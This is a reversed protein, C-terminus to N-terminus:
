IIREILLRGLPSAAPAGLEARLEDLKRRLSEHLLLDPGAVLRLWAAETLLALDGYQQWISPDVDLARRLEPLVSQDGQQARRVLEELTGAAEGQENPESMVEM